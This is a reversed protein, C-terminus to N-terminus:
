GGNALRDFVCEGVIKHGRTSLHDDNALFSEQGLAKALEDTPNLCTLGLKTCLDLLKKTPASVDLESKLLTIGDRKLDSLANPFTHMLLRGAVASSTPIIAIIPKFRHLTSLRLFEKLEEDLVSWARNM